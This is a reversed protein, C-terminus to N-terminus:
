NVTLYNKVKGYDRETVAMVKKLDEVKEFKGHANRYAVIPKALVYRIYPHAKLDEETATNINIQKVSPDKLELYSIIKQFVSDALGYVEKLQDVSYFGGLKERFAVIRAALRSGIGPLAIFATTDARNIDVVAPTYPKREPNTFTASARPAAIRIFPELEAFQGPRLGYIRALDEKKRFVGGKGRYNLITKVTKEPLGMALWGAEDLANPDFPFPRLPAPTAREQRWAPRAARQERFEENEPPPLRVLVSSDIRIESRPSLYKEFVPPVWLSVLVFIALALFGIREKKSLELERVLNRWEM